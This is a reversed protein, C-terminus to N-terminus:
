LLDQINKAQLIQQKDILKIKSVEARNINVIMSRENNQPYASNRIYEKFDTLTFVYSKAFLGFKTKLADSKYITEGLINQTKEQTELIVNGKKDKKEKQVKIINIISTKCEIVYLSNNYIFMVDIENEVQNQKPEIDILSKISNLEKTESNSYIKAGVLIENDSLNLDSKVISGIYEEFWEGTLYNIESSNLKGEEKPTYDIDILFNHLKNYNENSINRNRFNRLLILDEKHSDFVGDCYKEFIIKTQEKSIGSSETEQIRFGYGTLYEKLSISQTFKHKQNTPRLQYYELAKNNGPIYYIEAKDNEKFWDFVALEMMKTGGTINVIIKDYDSFDYQSIAEKIDIYSDHSVITRNVNDIGTADVIHNVIGKKEMSETTIMLYDCGKNIVKVEKILQINPLTQDSILSILITKTM